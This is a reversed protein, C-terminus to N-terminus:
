GIINDGAMQTYHFAEQHSPQSVDGFSFVGAMMLCGATVMSLWFKKSM